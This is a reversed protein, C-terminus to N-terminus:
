CIFTNATCDQLGVNSRWSRRLPLLSSVECLQLKCVSVMAYVNVDESMCVDHVYVIFKLFMGLLISLIHTLCLAPNRKGQMDNPDDSLFVPKLNEGTSNQNFQHSIAQINIIKFSRSVM